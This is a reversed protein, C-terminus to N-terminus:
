PCKHDWPGGGIKDQAERKAARKAIRCGSLVTEVLMWM